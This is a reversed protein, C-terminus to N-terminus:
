PPLLHTAESGVIGEEPDERVLSPFNQLDFGIASGDMIVDSAQIEGLCPTLSPSLYLSELVVDALCAKLLRRRFSWSRPEIM